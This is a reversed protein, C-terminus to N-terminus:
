EMAFVSDFHSEIQAAADEHIAVRDVSSADKCVPVYRKGRSTCANLFVYHGADSYINMEANSVADALRQANTAVPAVEDAQGALILLPADIESLSEDSFMQVIAPAMVAAAKIRDDRYSAASAEKEPAASPDSQLLAELDEEVDPYETQPLCTNDAESSACFAAFRELDIRGGLTATVSYGGLSFGAAGIRQSDLSESFQPDALIESILFSIDRPREWVYLFGRPDFEDEAATNGHHDIAAAVYGAEALRRGLWMMQFASGGTGHSLVILPHRGPAIQADRIARGGIFVPKDSPIDFSEAVAADAAPYWIWANVPRAEDRSAWSPRAPDSYDLRMMGISVPSQAAEPGAVRSDDCASLLFLGALLFLAGSWPANIRVMMM